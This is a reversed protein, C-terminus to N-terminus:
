LQAYFPELRARIAAELYGNHQVVPALLAWQKSIEEVVTDEGIGIGAIWDSVTQNKADELVTDVGEELLSRFYGTQRFHLWFQSGLSVFKEVDDAGIYGDVRPHLGRAAKWIENSVETIREDTLSEKLKAESSNLIGQMNSSIYGRLRDELSGVRKSLMSGGKKMLSGMGPVKKTMETGAELYDAIGNYLLDSVIEAYLPNAATAHIVDDRLKKLTLSHAVLAVRADDDVLDGLSAQANVPSQILNVAVTSIVDLLEDTVPGDIVYRQVIGMVQEHSVLQPVPTNRLTNWLLHVQRSIFDQGKSGVLQEIEFAVHAEYQTKVDQKM